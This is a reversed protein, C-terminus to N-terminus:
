RVEPDHRGKPKRLATVLARNANDLRYGYRYLTEIAIPPEATKLKRRLHHLLPEISTVPSRSKRNFAVDLNLRLRERSVPGDTKYITSLIIREALTLRLGRYEVQTATVIIMERLQERASTM